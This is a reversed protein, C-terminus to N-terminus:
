GGIRIDQTTMEGDRLTVKIASGVIQDLVAPDNWEGPELDTLAALFYEGAPLGKASFAGSTDPRIMRIRRSGPTWYARDASFVLIDYDTAARGTRDQFVGTVGTPKDTLTITWDLPENANVRLPADFAERGNAASSKIVWTNNAVPDTWSMVFQYADPV